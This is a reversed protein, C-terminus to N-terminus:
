RRGHCLERWRLRFAAERIVHVAARGEAWLDYEGPPATLPAIRTFDAATEAQDHYLRFLGAPTLCERLTALLAHAATEALCRGAPHRSLVRDSDAWLDLTARHGPLLPTDHTAIM